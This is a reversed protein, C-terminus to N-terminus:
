KLSREIAKVIAKPSGNAAAETRKGIGDSGISTVKPRTVGASQFARVSEGTDNNHLQFTWRGDYFEFNSVKWGGFYPNTKGLQNAIATAMTRVERTYKDELAKLDKDFAQIIDSAENLSTQETAFTNEYVKAAHKAIDSM